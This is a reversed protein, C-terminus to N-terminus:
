MTDVFPNTIELGDIRFGHQLDESYLVSCRAALAARIVLADWFSLPHLRALDTPALIDDVQTVMVDMTAFLESRCKEGGSPRLVRYSRWSKAKGECRKSATS